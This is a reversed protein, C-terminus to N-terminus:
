AATSVPTPLLAPEQPPRRRAVFWSGVSLALSALYIVQFALDGACPIVSLIRAALVIVAVGVLLRPLEGDVAGTM